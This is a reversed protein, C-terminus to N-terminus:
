DGDKVEEWEASVTAGQYAIALFDQKKQNMMYIDANLKQVRKDIAEAVMKAHEPTLKDDYDIIIENLSIYGDYVWDAVSISGDNLNLIRHMRKSAMSM